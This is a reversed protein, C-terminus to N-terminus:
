AMGKKWDRIESNSMRCPEVSGRRKADVKNKKSLRKCAAYHRHGPGIEVTKDGHKVRFIRQGKADGRMPPAKRKAEERDQRRREARPLKSFKEKRQRDKDHNPNM